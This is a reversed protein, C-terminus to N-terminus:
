ATQRAAPNTSRGIFRRVGGGRQVEVLAYRSIDLAVEAGGSSLRVSTPGNPAFLMYLHGDRTGRRVCWVPGSADVVIAHEALADIYSEAPGVCVTAGLAALRDLHGQTEPRVPQIAPFVIARPAEGLEPLQDEQVISFPIHALALASIALRTPELERAYGALRAFGAFEMPV